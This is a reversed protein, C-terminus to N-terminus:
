YEFAEERINKYQNKIKMILDNSCGFFMRRMFIANNTNFNYLNLENLVSCGYFMGEM